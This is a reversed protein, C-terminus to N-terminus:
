QIAPGITKTAVTSCSAPGYGKQTNAPYQDRGVASWAVVNVLLLTSLSLTQKMQRMVVTKTALAKVGENNAMTHISTEDHAHQILQTTTQQRIKPPQQEAEKEKRKKKKKQACM